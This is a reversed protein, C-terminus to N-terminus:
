NSCFLRKVSPTNEESTRLTQSFHVDIFNTLVKIISRAEKLLSMTFSSENRKESSIAEELMSSLVALTRHKHAIFQEYEQDNVISLATIVITKRIARDETLLAAIQADYQQKSILNEEEVDCLTYIISTLPAIPTM